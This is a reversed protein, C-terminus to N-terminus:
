IKLIRIENELSNLYKQFEDQAIIVTQTNINPHFGVTHYSVVSEDLILIVEHNTDNILGFASVSGPTIGLYKMLREPSGFSLRKEGLMLSLNKISLEKDQPMIALYHKSGNANKFFLNKIELFDIQDLEECSEGCKRLPVHKVIKYDISLNNLFNYVKEYIEKENITSDSM